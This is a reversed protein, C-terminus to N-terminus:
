WAPALLLQVAPLAVHAAELPLRQLRPRAIRGAVKAVQVLQELPPRHQDGIGGLLRRLALPVVDRRLQVQAEDGLLPDGVQDLPQRGLPADCSFLSKMALTECSSFVGSDSIRMNASSSAVPFCLPSPAPRSYAPMMVRSDSRRACRM